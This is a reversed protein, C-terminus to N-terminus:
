RTLLKYMEKNSKNKTSSLLSVSGGSLAYKVGLIPIVVIIIRLIFVIIQEIIALYISENDSGDTRVLPQNQSM